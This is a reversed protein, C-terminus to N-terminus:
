AGRGPTSPTFTIGGNPHQVVDGYFRVRHAAMAFPNSYEVFDVTGAALKTVNLSAVTGTGIVGGAIGKPGMPIAAKAIPAAAALGAIIQFLSRRTM